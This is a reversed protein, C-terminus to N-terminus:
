NKYSKVYFDRITLTQFSKSFSTKRITLSKHWSCPLQHITKFLVETTQM